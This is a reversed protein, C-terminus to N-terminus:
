LEIKWRKAVKWDHPQHHVFPFPFILRHDSPVFVSPSRSNSHLHPNISRFPPLSFPPSVLPPNLRLQHGPRTSGLPRISM